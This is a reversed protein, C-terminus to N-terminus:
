RASPGKENLKNKKAKPILKDITSDYESYYSQQAKVNHSLFISICLIVLKIAKM